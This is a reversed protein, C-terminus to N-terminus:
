PTIRAGILLDGDGHSSALLQSALGDAPFTVKVPFKNTALQVVQDLDITGTGGAQANASISFLGLGLNVSNLTVTVTPSGPTGSQTVQAVTQPLIVDAVINLVQVLVLLFVFIEPGLVAGLVIGYIPNVTVKAKITADFRFNLLSGTAPAPKAVIDVDSDAGMWINIKVSNSGFLGGLFGCSSKKIKGQATAWAGVRATFPPVPNQFSVGVGTLYFGLGGIMTSSPFYGKHLGIQIAMNAVRQNLQAAATLQSGVPILDRVALVNSTHPNGSQFDALAVLGSGGLSAGMTPSGSAFLVGLKAFIDAMQYIPIPILGIPALVAQVIMTLFGLLGNILGTLFSLGQVQVTFNKFGLGIGTPLGGTTVQVAVELDDIDVEVHDTVIPSGSFTVVIDGKIAFSALTGSFRNAANVARINTVDLETLSMQLGFPGFNTQFSTLGRQRLDFLIGSLVADIALQDIQLYLDPNGGSLM